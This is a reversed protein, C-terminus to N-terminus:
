LKAAGSTHNFGNVMHKGIKTGSKLLECNIFSNVLVIKPQWTTLFYTIVSGNFYSNFMKSIHKNALILQSSPYCALTRISFKFSFWRCLSQFYAVFDVKWLESFLM